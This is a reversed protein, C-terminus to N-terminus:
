TQLYSHDNSLTAYAVVLLCYFRDATPGFLTRICVQLEHHCQHELHHRRHIYIMSTDHTSHIYTSSTNHRHPVRLDLILMRYTRGFKVGIRATGFRRGMVGICLNWEPLQSQVQCLYSGLISSTFVPCEM